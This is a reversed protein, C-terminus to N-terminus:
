TIVLVQLHYLIQFKKSRNREFANWITICEFLYKRKGYFDSNFGAGLELLAAVKGKVKVKGSSPQLTGSVIQLLTSKGSGNLGVIGLSEGRLISVNINDLALLKKPTDLNKKSFFHFIFWEM